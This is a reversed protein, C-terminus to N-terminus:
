SPSEQVKNTPVATQGESSLKYRAVATWRSWKPGPHVCVRCTSLSPRPDNPCCIGPDQCSPLTKSLSSPHPLKPEKGMPLFLHIFGLSSGELAHLGFHALEQTSDLPMVANWEM